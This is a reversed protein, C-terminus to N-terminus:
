SFFQLYVLPAAAVIVLICVRSGRFAGFASILLTAVILLMHLGFIYWKFDQAIHSFLLLAYTGYALLLSIGAFQATFRM